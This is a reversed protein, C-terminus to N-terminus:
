SVKPRTNLKTKDKETISPKLYNQHFRKPLTDM